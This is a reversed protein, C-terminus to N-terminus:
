NAVCRVSFGHSRSGFTGLFVDSSYFYVYYANTSYVTSSWYNGHSGATNLSGASDSNGYRYGAAPLFLTTSRYLGNTGTGSSDYWSWQNKDNTTSVTYPHTPLSSISTSNGKFISQWQAMTPVKYGDPCPDNDAKAADTWRTDNGGSSRWDYPISSTRIFNAHNPTNSTALTKTTGSNRKEHGDAPRGWQYLDGYIVSNTTNGTPTPYAMQQAPTAYAPDAGLNYPMFELWSGCMTYAGTFLCDQIKATLKLAHEIGGTPADEYVVYIEVKL